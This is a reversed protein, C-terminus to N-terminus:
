HYSMMVGNKEHYFIYFHDKREFSILDAWQTIELINIERCNHASSIKLKLLLISIFVEKAL